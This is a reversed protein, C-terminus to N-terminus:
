FYRTIVTIIIWDTSERIAYVEVQKTRYYKGRWKGDFLFNRRFGTRNFKVPFKEGQEITGKVEDETTSREKMREQAHPHFRIAM